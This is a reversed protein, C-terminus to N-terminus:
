IILKYIDHIMKQKVFLNYKRKLCFNINETNYLWNFINFIKDFQYIKVDYYPNNVTSVKNQITPNFEVLSKLLGEALFKSGTTFQVTTRLPQDSTYNFYICGDGDFIGLIYSNLYRSPVDLFPVNYRKDSTFGYEKLKNTLYSSCIILNFGGKGNSYIKGKHGLKNQLVKLYSNDKQFISVNNCNTSVHGDSTIIGILYWYFHSNEILLSEDIQNSYRPNKTVNLKQYITKRFRDRTIGLKEAIEQHTLNSNLYNNINSLELTKVYDCSKRDIKVLEFKRLRRNITPESVNYFTSLQKQTLKEVIYKQYLEEKSFLFKDKNIM